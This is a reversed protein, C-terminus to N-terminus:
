ALASPKPHPATTSAAPVPWEANPGGAGVVCNTRLTADDDGPQLLEGGPEDFRPFRSVRDAAADEAAIEEQALALELATASDRAEVDYFHNLYDNGDPYTWPDSQTWKQSQLVAKHPTTHQSVIDFHDSYHRILAWRHKDNYWNIPTISM